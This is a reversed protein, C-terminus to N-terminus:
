SRIEPDPLEDLKNPNDQLWAILGELITELDKLDETCLRYLEENSIEHYFHVM